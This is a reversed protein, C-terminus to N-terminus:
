GSTDGVVGKANDERGQFYRDEKAAKADKAVRQVRAKKAGKAAKAIRRVEERRVGRGEHNTTFSESEAM